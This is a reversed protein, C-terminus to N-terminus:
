FAYKFSFNFKKGKQPIHSVLTCGAGIAILLNSKEPKNKSSVFEPPIQPNNKHITGIHFNSRKFTLSFIQILSGTVQQPTEDQHALPNQM